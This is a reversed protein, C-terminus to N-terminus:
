LNFHRTISKAFASYESKNECCIDLIKAAEQDGQYAKIAIFAIKSVISSRYKVLESRNLGLETETTLGRNNIPKVIAVGITHDFIFDFFDDPNETTPNVFPGGAEETPFKNGKYEKGNCIGCSLLLNQWSFCLSPDISKPIFHEIDSYDIHLVYSECYACKGHFMEKLAGKVKPHNYKKEANEKAKKNVQTNSIMDNKIALIFNDKWTEANKILIDPANIREVFIM